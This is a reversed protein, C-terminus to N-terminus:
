CVVVLVWIMRVKVRMKGKVKMIMMRVLVGNMMKKVEYLLGVM